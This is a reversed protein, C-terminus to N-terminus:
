IDLRKAPFNSCIQVANGRVVIKAFFEIPCEKFMKQGCFIKLPYEQLNLGALYSYVVEFHFKRSFFPENVFHYIKCKSFSM